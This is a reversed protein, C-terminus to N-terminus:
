AGSGPTAALRPLLEDLREYGESVGRAMGAAVMADRDAVSQFVSITRILTRDGRPEFRLTDLSVHGPAGEYEFTQVMGNTSQEGHFVGRFAHQAGDTGTHIYRYSGGHHLDWQEVTMTYQRPGLWQALLEPESWARFLLEPTAAFERTIEVVPVGPPASVHIEAM